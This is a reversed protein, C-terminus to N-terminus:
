SAAVGTAQSAPSDHILSLNFHAAACAALSHSTAAHSM